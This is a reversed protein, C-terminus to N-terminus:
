VLVRRSYFRWQRRFPPKAKTGFNGGEWNDLNNASQAANEATSSYEVGANGATLSSDTQSAGVAAGSYKAVISTGQAELYLATGAAYTISRTWITSHAGAVRKSLYINNSAASSIVLRYSFNSGARVCVGLGEDHGAGSGTEGSTVAAQSYQDNPWAIATYGTRNDSPISGPIATNSSIDFGQEHDTWNAGLTAANARNFDDTALVAM